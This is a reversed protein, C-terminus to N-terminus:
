ESLATLDDFKMNDIDTRLTKLDDASVDLEVDTTATSPEVVEQIVPQTFSVEEKPQDTTEQEVKKSGCGSLGAILFFLLTFIFIKKM